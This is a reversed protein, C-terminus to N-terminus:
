SHGHNYKLKLGIHKLFAKNEPILEKVLPKKSVSNKLGDKKYVKIIVLGM